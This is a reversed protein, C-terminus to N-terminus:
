GDSESTNATAELKPDADDPLKPEANRRDIEAVVKLVLPETPDLRMINEANCPIRGGGATEFAPGQWGVINHTLLAIRWEGSDFNAEGSLSFKTSASIVNQKRGYDMKPVIFITNEGETIPVKANKEVFM